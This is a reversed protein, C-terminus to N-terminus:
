SPRHNHNINVTINIITKQDLQDHGFDDFHTDLKAIIVPSCTNASNVRKFFSFDQVIEQAWM